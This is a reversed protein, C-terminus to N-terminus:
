DVLASEEIILSNTDGDIKAKVGMPITAKHTDHGFCINQLIPKELSVLIDEFVQEINLSSEPYKPGCDTFQGLVIGKVDDLKGALKLQTLMRDIRYPEEELEEILLLKGRTDIEFPTGLTDSILSLNGGILKGEASGCALMKGEPTGPAKVIKGIPFTSTLAKMMHIATYNEFESSLFDSTLMPGHFTVLQCKQIIAIHIATIDSYGMFIKPNSKITDYNILNLIRPSGYGGRMCFVADIKPDEFMLNIDEARVEDKGALYGYKGFCSTGHRIRFGMSELRATAKYLKVEDAPSGPAVIGITDGKRLAKPKIL